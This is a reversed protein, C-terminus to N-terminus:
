HHRSDKSWQIDASMLDISFRSTDLLYIVYNLVVVTSLKVNFSNNNIRLVSTIVTLQLKKILIFYILGIRSFDIRM